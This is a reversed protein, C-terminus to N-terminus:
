HIGDDCPLNKDDFRDHEATVTKECPSLPEMVKNCCLIDKEKKNKLKIIKGCKRCIYSRNDTM